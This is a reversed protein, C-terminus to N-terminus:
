DVSHLKEEYTEKMILNSNNRNQMNAGVKKHPRWRNSKWEFYSKCVIFNNEKEVKIKITFM